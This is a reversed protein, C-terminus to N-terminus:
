DLEEARGEVAEYEGSSGRRPPSAQRAAPIQEGEESFMGGFPNRRGRAEEIRGEFPVYETDTVQRFAGPGRRRAPSLSRSSTQRPLFGPHLEEDSVQVEPKELQKYGISVKSTGTQEEIIVQIKYEDWPRGSTFRAKAIPYKDSLLAASIETSEVLQRSRQINHPNLRGRRTFKEPAKASSTQKNIVLQFPGKYTNIVLRALDYAAYNPNEYLKPTTFSHKSEIFQETKTTQTSPIYTAKIGALSNNIVEVRIIASSTICNLLFLLLFKSCKM